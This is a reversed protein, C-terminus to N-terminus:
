QFSSGLAALSDADRPNGETADPGPGHVLATKVNMTETSLLVHSQYGKFLFCRRTNGEDAGLPLHRM